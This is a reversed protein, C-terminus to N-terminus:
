FPEGGARVIAMITSSSSLIILGAIESTGVAEV